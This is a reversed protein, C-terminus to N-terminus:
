RHAPAPEQCPNLIQEGPHFIQFSQKMLTDWPMMINALLIVCTCRTLALLLGSLPLGNPQLRKNCLFFTTTCHSIAQADNSTRSACLWIHDSSVNHAISGHLHAALPNLVEAYSARVRLANLSSPQNHFIRVVSFSCLYGLHGSFLCARHFCSIRTYFCFRFGRCLIYLGSPHSIM